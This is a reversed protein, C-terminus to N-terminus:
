AWTPNSIWKKNGENRQRHRYLGHLGYIDPKAFLIKECVIRYDSFCNMVGGRAPKAAGFIVGYVM